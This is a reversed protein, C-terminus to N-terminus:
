IENFLKLYELFWKSILQNGKAEEQRKRVKVSNEDLPESTLQKTISIIVMFEMEDIGGNKDVDFVEFWKQAVDFFILQCFLEIDM